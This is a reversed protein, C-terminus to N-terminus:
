ATCTNALRRGFGQTTLLGSLEGAPADGFAAALARQEATQQEDTLDFGNPNVCCELSENDYYQSRAKLPAYFASINRLEEDHVVDCLM